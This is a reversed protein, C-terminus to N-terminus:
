PPILVVIILASIWFRRRMMLVRSRVHCNGNPQQGRFRSRSCNKGAPRSQDHESQKADLPAPLTPFDAGRPIAARPLVRM